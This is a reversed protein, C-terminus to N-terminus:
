KVFTFRLSHCDFRPLSLSERALDTQVAGFVALNGQHNRVRHARTETMMVEKADVVVEGEEVEEVKVEKM